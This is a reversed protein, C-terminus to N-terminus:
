IVPLDVNLLRSVDLVRYRLNEKLNQIAWEPFWNGDVLKNNNNNDTKNNNNNDFNSDDLLRVGRTDGLRAGGTNGGEGSTLELTEIM